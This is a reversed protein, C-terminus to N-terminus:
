CSGSLYTYPDVYQGNIQVRYDLHAGTCAGTCGVNGIQMGGSVNDGVRVMPMSQLHSFTDIRGDPYQIRVFYGLGNGTGPARADCTGNCGSAIVQGAGWSRIPTGAPAALDIGRHYASCTPCPRPREGFCSSIRGCGDLISAGGRGTNEVSGCASNPPLTSSAGYPVPAVGETGGTMNVQIANCDTFGNSEERIDEVTARIHTGGTAIHQQNLVDQTGQLFTTTLAPLMTVIAGGIIFGIGWGSNGQIITWLGYLAICFGLLLGIYSIEILYFVYCTLRKSLGVGAPNAWIDPCILMAGIIVFLLPLYKM